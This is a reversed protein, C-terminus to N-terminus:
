ASLFTKKKRLYIEEIRKAYVEKSYPEVAKKANARYEKEGYLVAELGSRFEEETEFAFGNEGNTLVDQLCDDKKAVVPLGAAMAEIYTLGQTESQSASIFVDGLAYYVGIEDWPKAGAFIVQRSMGEQEAVLKLDELAPGSGIVLFRADEHKEFFTPLMRLLEEINKEPAVRGVYLIVKEAGTLGVERRKDAIMEAGYRSGDFKSLDIGTPIVSIETRVQYRELLHKVKETPVVVHGGHNCFFKSYRRAFAKAGDDLVPIPAIYHTYDEYITHYTHITPIKHEAAVIRGFIGLAFETHTHIVDLNLGRIISDLKHQYFLGVRRESLFKLTMSPVRYVREEEEPAGPATTTFVYVEHGRKELEQRLLFVSAAVGNIEPYYTDTFLGIKM